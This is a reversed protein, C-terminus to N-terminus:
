VHLVPKLHLAPRTAEDSAQPNAKTQQSKLFTPNYHPPKGCGSVKLWAPPFLVGMGGDMWVSPINLLLQILSRNFLTVSFACYLDTHLTLAERKVFNEEMIPGSQM